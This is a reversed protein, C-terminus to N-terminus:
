REAQEGTNSAQGRTLRGGYSRVEEVIRDLDVMSRCELNFPCERKWCPSCALGEPILKVGRDFLDIETWCSVGFWVVVYKGLGIAAHMGFSDGSIVIDCLNIYCLGRRVGETTPTSLVKGAARRAIEANRLTDEPGGLLLLRIGPINALRDVLELHQEVSLKKNPYLESCGTNFGVVLSRPAAASAGLNHERAYSACFAKEEPSLTLAYSDRRYDLRFQECLIQPVTKTNRRFKWEDDLGMLYNEEAEVNLPIIVGNENIGFGLKEEASLMGMLAGSRRSKDVNLVLDFRLQQLVLWAEPDWRHVRDLDRIHELLPAANPLTIWSIHSTPYKRKLPTLISTTVLVNGMADLNIILIRTGLPAPDVCAEYCRTAPRCPRYGTFNRCDPVSWLKQGQPREERSRGSLRTRQKNGM